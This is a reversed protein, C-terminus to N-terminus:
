TFTWKVSGVPNLAYFNDSFTGFYITGDKGIAPSSEIGNGTDFKWKLNPEEINTKYPSLGTHKSNIKLTPSPSDALQANVTSIFLLLVLFLIYKNM